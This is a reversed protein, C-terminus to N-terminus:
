GFNFLRFYLLILETKLVTNASVCIAKVVQRNERNQKIGGDVGSSSLREKSNRSYAIFIKIQKTLSLSDYRVKKNQRCIVILFM